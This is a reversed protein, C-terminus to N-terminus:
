NITNLKGSSYRKLMEKMKIPNIIAGEKQHNLLKSDNRTM